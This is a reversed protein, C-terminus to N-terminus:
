LVCCVFREVPHFAEDQIAYGGAKDFSEGRKVYAAAEADAYARMVVATAVVAGWQLGDARVLVVGTLVEHPRGRLARLMAHAEDPSVPKGLVVGDLLVMTDASLVVESSSLSSQAARAKALAVSLPALTADLTAHQEEALDQPTVRFPQGLLHLLSQRRPSASALVLAAGPASNGTEAAEATM